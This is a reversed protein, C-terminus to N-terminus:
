KKWTLTMTTGVGVTSTLGIEAGLCAAGHKVISLGLGTGGIEKSHSKDVRYFREFIRKHSSAPIGIGTDSVSLVIKTDDEEVKATVSGGTKNYKIANECINFIVENLIERVGTIKGHCGELNMTVKAKEAASALLDMNEKVAQYLDIEVKEYPITNEDLQSIRIVDNVLTILRQSEDFIKGAFRPIDAPRVMGDRIIEAFGSISTLPTKLEHSVNASFERRLKESEHKETIDMLILVAGAGKGDRVVPSALLQCVQTVAAGNKGAGSDFADLIERRSEGSLAAEVAKQFKESRNLELVSQNARVSEAGLLKLASSNYSLIETRKDIVILGESMSETIITFEQQQRQAEQLQRSITRSQREIKTLFPEIEDYIDSSGVASELHDVDLRNIPETIKQAAKRAFFFALALLVLVAIIIPYALGAILVAVTHQTNALRLVSGDPLLKATYITKMALTDSYRVSQGYGEERAQLVEERDNHNEMQEEDAMNDFLVTGDPGILTFRAEADALRSFIDEGGNEVALALYDVEHRMEGHIQKEFYGPLVLFLWLFSAALMIGSVLLISQFIKKTM